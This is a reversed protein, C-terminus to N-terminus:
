ILLAGPTALVFILLLTSGITMLGCLSLHIRRQTLQVLM